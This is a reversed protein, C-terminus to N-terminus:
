DNFIIKYVEVEVVKFFKIEKSNNQLINSGKEYADNIGLGM